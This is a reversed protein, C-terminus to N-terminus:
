KENRTGSITSEVTLLGCGISEEESMSDVNPRLSTFKGHGDFVYTNLRVLRGTRDIICSGGKGGAASNCFIAPLGHERCQKSLRERVDSPTRSDAILLVADSLKSRYYKFFDEAGYYDSCVMPGIRFAPLLLMQQYEGPLINLAVKGAVTARYKQRYRATGTSRILTATNYYCDQRERELLGCIVASSDGHLANHIAHMIGEDQEAIPVYQESACGALCDFGITCLEPLVYLDACRQQLVSWLLTM